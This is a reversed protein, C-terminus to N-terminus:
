NNRIVEYISQRAEMVETEQGSCTQDRTGDTIDMIGHLLDHSQDEPEFSNERLGSDMDSDSSTDTASADGLEPDLEEFDSNTSESWDGGSETDTDSDSDFESGSRQFIELEDCHELVAEDNEIVEEDLVAKALEEDRETWTRSNRLLRATVAYGQRTAFQIARIFQCQGRGQTEAGSDLLLQVMDIRGHEAAAELATRGNNLAGLGNVSAELDILRRAVGLHGKAAAIQLATAGGDYAPKNNVDAGAEILIEMIELRKQEVAAQLPSRGRTADRGIINVNVGARILLRVMEIKGMQIAVLLAENGIMDPHQTIVRVHTVLLEMFETPLTVALYLCAQDPVFGYKLMESLASINKTGLAALLPSGTPSDPDGWFRLDSRRSLLRLKYPYDNWAYLLRDVFAVRYSDYGFRLPLYASPSGTPNLHSLILRTLEVGPHLAAIGVATAELPTIPSDRGRRELLRGVLDHGHRDHAVATAACLAKPEYQWESTELFTNTQTLDGHFIVGTLDWIHTVAGGGAKLLMDVLPPGGTEMARSTDGDQVTAGADLLAQVTNLRRLHEDDVGAGVARLSLELPREGTSSCANPDGGHALTVRLLEAHLGSAAMAVEDGGLRAGSQILLCACKTDWRTHKWPPFSALLPTAPVPKKKLEKYSSYGLLGAIADRHRESCGSPLHWHSNVEAGKEVLLRSLEANQYFSSLHLPSPCVEDVGHPNAGLSLLLEGLKVAMDPDVQSCAAHLPTVGFANSISIDTLISHLFSILDLNEDIVAAIVSDASLYLNIRTAQGQEKITEILYRIAKVTSCHRSATAYTIITEEAELGKKAAFIRTIDAGNEVLLKVLGLEGYLSAILVAPCTELLDPHCIYDPLPNPNVGSAILLRAMEHVTFDDPSAELSEMLLEPTTRFRRPNTKLIPKQMDVGESILFKLLPMSQEEVALELPTTPLGYPDSIISDAKQGSRLLWRTVKFATESGRATWYIAHGFLSEVFASLTTDEFSHLNIATDMFGLSMIIAAIEEWQALTVAGLLKNSLRFTLVAVKERFKDVSTGRLLTQARAHIEGCYAEPMIAGLSVTVDAVTDGSTPYGVLSSFSGDNPHM